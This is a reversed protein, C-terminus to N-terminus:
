VYCQYSFYLCLAIQAGYSTCLQYSMGQVLQCGRVGRGLFVSSHLDQSRCYFLNSAIVLNVWRLRFLSSVWRLRFLLSVWRLRITLVRSVGWLIYLLYLAPLQMSIRPILWLILVRSTIIKNPQLSQQAIDSSNFSCLARTIRSVSQPIAATHKLSWKSPTASGNSRAGSGRLVERRQKKKSVQKCVTKSSSGAVLIFM